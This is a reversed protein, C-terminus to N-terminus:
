TGDQDGRELMPLRAKLAAVGAPTVRTEFLDLNRLQRLSQLHQLGADTIGQGSISLKKLNRLATLRELGAGLGGPDDLGLLPPGIALREVLGEPSLRHPRQVIGDQLDLPLEVTQLGLLRAAHVCAQIAVVREAGEGVAAEGGDESAGM